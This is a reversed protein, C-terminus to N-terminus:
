IPERKFTGQYYKKELAVWDRKTKETKQEPAPRAGTAM